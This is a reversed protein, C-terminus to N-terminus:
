GTYGTQRNREARRAICDRKGCESCPNYSAAIGGNDYPLIGFIGSVSKRPGMVWSGQRLRVAVKEPDFLSFLREQESINWDCYGPSFRITVSRGMKRYETEMREHFKAVMNEVAVSGMTDLIYAESIKKAQMLENVEREIGEDITAIFCVADTCDRLARSIRSSTFVVGNLSFASADIHAIPRVLYSLRPEILGSIRVAWSDIMKSVSSSCSSGKRGGLLRMLDDKGIEPEIRTSRM